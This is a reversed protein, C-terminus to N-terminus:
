RTDPNIRVLTTPGTLGDPSEAYVIWDDGQWTPAQLLSASEVLPTLDGNLDSVFLGTSRGTDDLCIVALQTGSGNWAPRTSRSCRSDEAFLQRDNGGDADMVHATRVQVADAPEPDTLYIITRRDPSITPQVMEAGDKITRVEGNMNVAVLQYDGDGRVLPLIIDDVPIPEVVRPQSDRHTIAWAAGAVLLVLSFAVAAAVGRHDRLRELFSRPEEVGGPPKTPPEILPGPPPKQAPEIVPLTQAPAPNATLARGAALAVMRSDDDALQELAARAALALGQHRGNLLRKLDAVVAERVRPLPSDLPEQLEPPLESPTTVPTGRKAVYLRGQFDGWKGPTQNPTTATVKDFIYDYLEDLSVIGDQDRDADGTRLGEVLAGTFVSPKPAAEVGEKLNILGTEDIAFEMATSATIVARGRGGLRDKIDLGPGARSSIGREFAGAYCCDLLLVVRKSRTNNMSKNVFDSAVATAALLDLRTDAAALYLEGSDDKVGHCSFHLLLLDDPHRMSFIRAVELNVAHAPQNVLTRVEFGGIAPDGLVEALAEADRAPARLKTLGPDAYEYNAVILASRVEAM